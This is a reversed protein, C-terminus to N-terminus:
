SLEIFVKDVYEGDKDVIEIKITTGPVTIIEGEEPFRHLIHLILWSITKHKPYKQPFQINLVEQIEELTADGEARVKQEDIAEVPTEIEDTEDDIEGFIQEVIDELTILGSTKGFEDLVIAMHVRKKQFEFFLDDLIKTEPVKFAKTAALDLIKKDLNSPDLLYQSLQPVHIIYGINDISETYVPLRSVNLESSIEIVERLTKEASVAFIDNRHTMIERVEKDNLLLLKKMMKYEQSELAGHSHGIGLTAKIEQQMIERVEVDNIAVFKQAAKDLLLNLIKLPYLFPYLIFHLYSLLHATARSFEVPFLIAIKKPIIEGFIIVLFTGITASLTGGLEVGFLSSFFITLYTALLINVGNSLALTLTILLDLNKYLKYILESAFKNDKRIVELRARSLNTFATEAGSFIASLFLLIFVNFLVPLIDAPVSNTM